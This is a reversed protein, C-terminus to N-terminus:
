CGNAQLVPLVVVRVFQGTALLLANCYGAGQYILGHEDHGILRGAIKVRLAFAVDDLNEFVQVSGALGHDHDSVFPLDGLVCAPDDLHSVALNYGVFDRWSALDRGDGIWPGPARRVVLLKGDVLHQGPCMQAVALRFESIMEHLCEVCDERM